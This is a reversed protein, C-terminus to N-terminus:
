LERYYEDVRVRRSEKMSINAAMGIAVAMMGSRLDAMQGLPDEGRKRFIHDRMPGDAGGHGAISEEPTNIQILEGRRNFVKLSCAAREGYGETFVGARKRIRSVELRGESGNLVLRAGECPSHAILSYSMIAGGSYEVNVSVSDEIDIKESFICQDRYYGDVDETTYYLSSKRVDMYFECMKQYACTLCREGREKRTPGYFRRTGIANVSVPDEELYWNVLDFHHSSKHVLLSGSNERMRHWRRFYDAGHITDLMWEFHVNLVTGIIGGKLLEKVRAFLPQFRLNFTVIVDRGTRMKADYIALSKDFTTALPKEVIVDCGFEMARVAYIDHTCDVSTVIVVDPKAERLMEDFDSYVPIEKGVQACLYECRKWNTDYIGCFEACDGYEKVLPQAYSEIGRSGCGVLVYKKKM